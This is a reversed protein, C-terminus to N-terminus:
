TIISRSTVKQQNCIKDILFFVFPFLLLTFVTEKLLTKKLVFFEYEYIFYFSFHLIIFKVSLCVLLLFFLKIIADFNFYKQLIKIGVFVNLYIILYLGCNAGSLIGVCYGFFFSTFAGKSFTCNLGAYIVFMLILDPRTGHKGFPLLPHAQLFLLVLGTLFFLFNKSLIAWDTNM